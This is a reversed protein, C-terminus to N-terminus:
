ETPEERQPEPQVPPEELANLEDVSLEMARQIPLAVREGEGPLHRYGNLQAQQKARLQALEQPVVNYVKDQLQQHEVNQYVAVLAVVLAFLAISGVVGVLLVAPTNPDSQKDM